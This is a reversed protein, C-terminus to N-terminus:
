DKLDKDILQKVEQEKTKPSGNNQLTKATWYRVTSNDYKLFAIMIEVSKDDTRDRLARVLEGLIKPNKITQLADQLQQLLGESRILPQDFISFYYDNHILKTNLLQLWFKVNKENTSQYFCNLLDNSLTDQGSVLGRLYQQDSETPSNALAELSIHRTKPSDLLPKLTELLNGLQLQKISYIAYGKLNMDWNQVAQKLVKETKANLNTVSLIQAALVKAKADSSNIRNYATQQLSDKNLRIFLPLMHADGFDENKVLFDFIPTTCDCHLYLLAMGAWILNGERKETQIKTLLINEKSVDDSSAIVLYALIRQNPNSSNLLNNINNTYLKENKFNYLPFISVEHGKLSETLRTVDSHPTLLRDYVKFMKNLEQESFNKNLAKTFDKSFDDTSKKGQAFVSNWFLINSFFIIGIVIPKLNFKSPM